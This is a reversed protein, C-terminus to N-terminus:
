RGYLKYKIQFFKCFIIWSFIQCSDKFFWFDQCILSKLVPKSISFFHQSLENEIKRTEKELKTLEWRKDSKNRDIEISKWLLEM